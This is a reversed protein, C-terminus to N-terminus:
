DFLTRIYRPRRFSLRDCRKKIYVSSKQQYNSIKLIEYPWHFPSQISNRLVWEINWMSKTKHDTESLMSVSSTVTQDVESCSNSKTVPHLNKKAGCRESIKMIKNCVNLIQTHVIHRAPLLTTSPANVITQRKGWGTNRKKQSILFSM